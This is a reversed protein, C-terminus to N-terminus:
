IYNRLDARCCPPKSRESRKSNAPHPTTESFLRLSASRAAHPSHGGYAVATKQKVRKLAHLMYLFFAPPPSREEQEFFSGRVGRVISFLQSVVLFDRMDNVNITDCGLIPDFKSRLKM